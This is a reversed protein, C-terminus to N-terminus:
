SRIRLGQPDILPTLALTARLTDGAVVLDYRGATLWDDSIGEARRVYGYGISKGVTYGYGGSTLYGVPQGDRLITERGVLVADPDDLTFGAFRKGLPKAQASELATRGLKLGAELASEVQVNFWSEISRSVFQVSVMYIVIGPVIGMLAFNMVLRSMLRSGFRGRRYRSYLRALLLCVVSFLGIGVAVNASLVWSYYQDFLQTNGSAAALLALLVAVMAASVLLLYRLAKRM